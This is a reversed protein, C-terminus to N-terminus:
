ELENSTTRKCIEDSLISALILLQKKNVKIPKDTSYDTICIESSKKRLSDYLENLINKM